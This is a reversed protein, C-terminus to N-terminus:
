RIAGSSRLAAIEEPGYGLAGLVEDNNAGLEPAPEFIEGPTGLMKVPMGAVALPESVGSLKLEPLMRRAAYHPDSTIEEVTYVPGFPVKSGLRQKLEAKTFRRTYTDLVDILETRNERRGTESNFRTDAKLEPADLADCLLEFFHQSVAAIAVMGDKAAFYGFPAMVPQHNGVPGPTQNGFSRQYVIRESLSLISDLMAVDLFQGKGTGVRSVVAALIGIAMFLGPVTDGVGPGVKMPQGGREGTIGSIGGMAQAVVDYAPWNVYPSKGSRPDGFGRICAYILRPNIESLTEYSLGLKELTGVRFNEAVVDVKPILDLILQRGQTSKLDVTLSKKNRNISQFYGAHLREKDSHHFPGGYRSADGKSPAEVKIVTAGLDALIQTSYPGALMQTFDLVTLGNLAGWGSALFGCVAQLGM